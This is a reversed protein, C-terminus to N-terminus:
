STNGPKTGVQTSSRAPSSSTRNPLLLAAVMLVAGTTIAVDAINFAPWHWGRVHFDLYDIVHGRTARDLGNGLAGGLILGFSLAESVPRPKALMVAIWASVAVAIALFFWRQWGGANALFSFAAGPNLIHVLNFFGTVTYSWGLPTGAVVATKAAQDAAFVTLALLHWRTLTRLGNM